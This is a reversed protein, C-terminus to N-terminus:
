EEDKAEYDKWYSGIVPLKCFLDTKAPPLCEAFFLVGAGAAVGFRAAAGSWRRVNEPNAGLLRVSHSIIRPGAM